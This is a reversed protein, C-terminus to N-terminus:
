AMSNQACSFQPLHVGQRTPATRPRSSSSAMAAPRPPVAASARSATSHSIRRCPVSHPMPPMAGNGTMLASSCKGPSKRLRFLHDPDQAIGDVDVAQV